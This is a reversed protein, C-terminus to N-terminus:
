EADFWGDAFIWLALGAGIGYLFSVHSSPDGYIVFVAFLLVTVLAIRGETMYKM